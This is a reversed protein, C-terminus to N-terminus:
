NIQTFCRYPGGNCVLLLLVFWTIGHISGVSYDFFSSHRYDFLLFITTASGITEGENACLSNFIERIFLFTVVMGPLGLDGIIQGYINHSEM